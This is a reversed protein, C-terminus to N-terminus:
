VEMEMDPEQWQLVEKGDAPKAVGDLLNQELTELYEFPSISHPRQWDEIGFGSWQDRGDIYEMSVFDVSLIKSEDSIRCLRGSGDDYIEWYCDRLLKAPYLTETGAEEYEDKLKLKEPLFETKGSFFEKLERLFNEKQKKKDM